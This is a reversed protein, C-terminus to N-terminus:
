SSRYLVVNCDDQVVLKYTMDKSFERTIDTPNTNMGKLSPRYFVLSGHDTLKIQSYKDTSHTESAWIPVPRTENM